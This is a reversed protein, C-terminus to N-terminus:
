LPAPARSISAFIEFIYLRVKTSRREGRIFSRRTSRVSDANIASHLEELGAGTACYLFHRLLLFYCLEQNHIGLLSLVQTSSNTFLDSKNEQLIGHGPHTCYM